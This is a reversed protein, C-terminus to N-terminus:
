PERMKKIEYASNSIRENVDPHDRLIAKLLSPDEESMLQLRQFMTIMAEPKFGAAAMIHLGLYDAEREEERGHTALVGSSVVESAASSVEKADSGVLGAVNNVLDKLQGIAQAHKISKLGHRATIHGIEHGVVSALEDDNALNLLASTVYIYGGPLSLANIETSRTVFFRFTLDNRPSAQALKQGIRNLRAQGQPIVVYRRRIIKNVYTGVNAEDSESILGENSYELGRFPAYPDGGLLRAASNLFDGGIEIATDLPAGVPPDPLKQAPATKGRAPRKKQAYLGNASLGCLLALVAALPFLRALTKTCKMFIVGMMTVVYPGSTKARLGFGFRSFCFDRFGNLENRAKTSHHAALSAM